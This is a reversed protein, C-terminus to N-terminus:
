EAENAKELQFVRGIAKRYYKEKEDTRRRLTTFLDCRRSYPQSNIKQFILMMYDGKRPLVFIEGTDYKIFDESLNQLNINLVELLRAEKTGAIKDYDHSFKINM